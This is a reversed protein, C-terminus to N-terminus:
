DFVVSYGTPLIALSGKAALEKILSDLLITAAKKEDLQTLRAWLKPQTTQIFALIDKPFLASEADYTSPDGKEYGGHSILAQEIANEFDIEKHM